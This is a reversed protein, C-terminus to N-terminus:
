ESSAQHRRVGVRRVRSDVDLDPHHEGGDAEDRLMEVDKELAVAQAALHDNV